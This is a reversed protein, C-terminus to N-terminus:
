SVQFKINIANKLLNSRLAKKKIPLHMSGPDNLIHYFQSSRANM